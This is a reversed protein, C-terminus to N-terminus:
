VEGGGSSQFGRGNDEGRQEEYFHHELMKRAMRLKDEETFGLADKETIARPHEEVGHDAFPGYYVRYGKLGVGPKFRGPPRVEVRWRNMGKQRPDVTATVIGRTVMIKGNKFLKVTEMM